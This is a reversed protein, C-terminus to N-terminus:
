AAIELLASKDDEVFQMGSMLMAKKVEVAVEEISKEPIVAWREFDVKDIRWLGLCASPEEVDSGYPKSVVLALDITIHKLHPKVINIIRRIAAHSVLDVDCELLPSATTKGSANITKSVKTWKSRHCEGHITIEVPKPKILRIALPGDVLYPVIKLRKNRYDEDGSLFRKFFTVFLHLYLSISALFPCSPFECFM